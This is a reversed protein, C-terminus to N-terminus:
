NRESVNSSHWRQCGLHRARGCACVSERGCFSLLQDDSDFVTKERGGGWFFIEDMTEQIQRIFMATLYESNIKGM